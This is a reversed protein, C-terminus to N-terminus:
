PEPVQYPDLVRQAAEGKPIRLDMAQKELYRHAQEETMNLCQILVWKARNVLRIERMREEVSAHKAEEKRLRERVACLVTLFQKIVPVSTPKGMTLVGHEVVRQGIDALQDNKVFLLVVTNSRGCLEVALQTGFDDPLPTNILVLDYERSTLLRRAEGASRATAVPWYQSPSLLGGLTQSFKEGASVLLVSYTREQFVM